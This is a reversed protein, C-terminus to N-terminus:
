VAAESLGRERRMEQLTVKPDDAQLLRLISPFRPDKPDLVLHLGAAMGRDLAKDNESSEEVVVDDNQRMMQKTFLHGENGVLSTLRKWANPVDEHFQVYVFPKHLASPLKWLENFEDVTELRESFGKEFAALDLESTIKERIMQRTPIKLYHMKGTDDLGYMYKQSNEEISRMNTSGASYYRMPQGNRNSRKGRVPVHYDGSFVTRFHPIQELSAECAVVDGMFEEWVQHMVLIASDKAKVKPFQEFEDKIRDAPTWDLGYLSFAGDGAKCLKKHIHIPWDHIASLWPPDSLEHQGQTYYFLTDSKKLRDMQGRVFEIVAAPPKRVDILDGAGVLPLKMQEAVHCCYEFSYMSDYCLDPRNAWAHLDLHADAFFLGILPKKISTTSPLRFM